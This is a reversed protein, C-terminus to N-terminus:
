KKQGFLGTLIDFFRMEVKEDWFQQLSEFAELAMAAENWLKLEVTHESARGKTERVRCSNFSEDDGGYDSLSPNIM